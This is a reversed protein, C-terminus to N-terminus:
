VRLAVDLERNMNVNQESLGECYFRKRAFVGKRRIKSVKGESGEGLEDVSDVEEVELFWVRLLNDLGYGPM